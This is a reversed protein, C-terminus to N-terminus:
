GFNGSCDLNRLDELIKRQLPASDDDDTPIENGKDSLIAKWSKKATSSKVSTWAADVYYIADLVQNMPQHSSDCKPLYKVFINGDESKLIEESPHSTASVLLLVAKQPLGVNELHKRVAPVFFATKGCM